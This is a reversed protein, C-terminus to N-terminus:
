EEEGGNVAQTHTMAESQYQRWLSPNEKMVVDLAEAYTPKKEGAKSIIEKVLVDIQAQVSGSGSGRDSGGVSRLLPKAAANAAKLVERLAKLDEATSKNQSFRKLVPGLVKPDGALNAYGKAEEIFAKEINEDNLKEIQESAFNAKAIAQEFVERAEPTLGKLVEEEKKAKKEVPAAALKAKADALDSQLKEVHKRVEPDLKDLEM